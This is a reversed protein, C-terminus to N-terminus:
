DEYRNVPLGPVEVRLAFVAGSDPHRKLAQADLGSRATTLFLTRLDPGGFCLGTPRQAPTPIRALLQGDPGLCVVCGGDALALWYRGASDIAAGQPRGSIAQGDQLLPLQAFGLPPGLVPPHLGASTLPYRDIRGSASDGWHLRRGDPSWALGAAEQRGPLLRLLEPNPRDLKHLCYLDARGTRGEDIRTDIWLRGWPDCCGEHFRQRATDYPASVIRQAIDHWAQSLYIGDRLALLLAGSRCPSLCGPTQELQWMETRGSPLHLRWIRNQVRDVWYVREQQPHWFPAAGWSCNPASIREWAPDAPQSDPKRDPM